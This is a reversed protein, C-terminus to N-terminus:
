WFDIMVCQSSKVQQSPRIANPPATPVLLSPPWSTTDPRPCPITAARCPQPTASRRRPSMWNAASGIAVALSWTEPVNM